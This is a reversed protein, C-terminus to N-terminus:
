LVIVEDLFLWSDGGKPTNKLNQVKLEIFRAQHKEFDFSFNQLKALGNKEFPRTIKGIEKYNKGDSSTRLIIETPFFIGSGQHEMAGLSLSSIATNEGLDVIFHADDTLWALWQKDHFDQTGRVVNTLTSDGQGSYNKHYPIKFFIPKGFAKHFRIENQYIVESPKEEFFLCAKVSASTGQLLIPETYKSAKAWDNENILYRIDANPLESKLTVSIYKSQSSDAKIQAVVQKMSKAYNIHMTELRPLNQLTRKIFDDYNKNEKSTWVVESLAFLRPFIMYESHSENPIFEAWLNAQSGLIKSRQEATLDEENLSYAYMKSLPLYGGIALPENQPLGQYKDIYCDSTLIVQHGQEISKKVVDIGRWNMVVAQKPLGGETIEDWGVLTRGKSALYKEIRKIFYSQLQHANKLQHDKMRKQCHTCQTWETHTAEDGGIHIYKSPFLELVEDLVDELFAFTSERGACYIDTIPWVGGSPVAIPRQHCSLEPYSAIASMTHAPMEIEPIVNIGRQQAYAVIEKIDEQTYFGGYTGKELPSNTKRDDWHKDEQNVRWAGIETLKPYKKIQLRWGENDILHFHFTNLKLMAMRDLTKLIYEKSFFHRSVDIMLGRWQYQPKDTIKVSPIVWRTQTKESSEIQHPLLMRLSQIGNAFGQYDSAYIKVSQRDSTLTYQEKDLSTDTIFAVYNQNPMQESISLEWDSATKFKETLISAIPQLSDKAVFTTQPTFEFYDNEVVVSLPKPIIHIDDESFTLKETSNCGMLAIGVVLFIKKM